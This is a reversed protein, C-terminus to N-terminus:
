CSVTEGRKNKIEFYFFTIFSHYFCSTYFTLVMTAIQIAVFPLPSFTKALFPLLTTFIAAFLSFLILALVVRWFYGRTTTDSAKLPSLGEKKYLEDFFVSQTVFAYRFGKYIGPIILLLFFFLVIFFAKIYNLVLPWVTNAIFTWFPRQAVSGKAQQYTYYPVMFVLFAQAVLALASDILISAVESVEQYSPFFYNLALLFVISGAFYYFGFYFSAKKFVFPLSKLSQKFSSIILDM